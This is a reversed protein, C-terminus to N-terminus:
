EHAGVEILVQRLLAPDVNVLSEAKGLAPCLVLSIKGAKAKKDQRMLSLLTEVPLASNLRTPLGLQSCLHLLRQCLADDSLGVAHATNAACCMGIAVAEGHLYSDNGYGSASEIAHAFTHGFNLVQRLGSERFDSHVVDNKIAASREVIYQIAQPDRDILAHVNHELFSFLAPDAIMGHKIVEALGSVYERNSLSSLWPLHCVIHCPLHFAGIYNKADVLNVATKGGLAADLMALLTTPFHLVDIGRMYCAAVFGALDTTAGGGLSIIASGRDMGLDKCALWCREAITLTKAAEGRPLLFYSVHTHAGRLASIFTAGHLAWVVEDALLFLQNYGSLAEGVFVPLPSEGLSITVPTALKTFNLIRCL